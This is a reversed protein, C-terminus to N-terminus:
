NFNLLEVEFILPTNGPILASSGRSGYAITSPLLLLGKGEKQFLPIGEQWGQIVGRLPFSIPMPSEDFVTGDLRYGKYNVLVESNITPHGGTGPTEIIYHLGSDTSQATLNNATLYEQIKAIDIALQDTDDGCNTFLFASVLLLTIYRM